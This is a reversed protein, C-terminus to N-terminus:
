AAAGDSRRDEELLFARLAELDDTTILDVGAAVLERWVRVAEPGPPEPTAWFRPRRGARHALETMRHLRHQEEDPMGGRGDWAFHRTWDDSV